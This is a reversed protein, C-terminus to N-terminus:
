VPAPRPPGATFVPIPLRLQRPPLLLPSSLLLLVDRIFDLSGWRAPPFLGSFSLRLLGENVKVQSELHVHSPAQFNRKVQIEFSREACMKRSKVKYYIWDNAQCAHSAAAYPCTDSIAGTLRWSLPQTDPKAHVFWGFLKGCYNSKTGAWEKPSGKSLSKWRHSWPVKKLLLRWNPWQRRFPFSGWGKQHSSSVMLDSIVVCLQFKCDLRFSPRCILKCDGSTVADHFGDKEACAQTPWLLM